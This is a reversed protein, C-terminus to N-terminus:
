NQLNRITKEFSRIAVKVKNFMSQEDQPKDNESAQDDDFTDEHKKILKQFKKNDTVGGFGASQDKDDYNNEQNDEKDQRNKDQKNQISSKNSEIWRKAEDIERQAEEDTFAWKTHEPQPADYEHAKQAALRLGAQAIKLLTKAADSLDTRKEFTLQSPLQFQLEYVHPREKQLKQLYAQVSEQVNEIESETLELKLTEWVKKVMANVSPYLPLGQDDKPVHNRELIVQQMLFFYAREAARTFQTQFQRQLGDQSEQQPYYTAIEDRLSNVVNTYILPLQQEYKALWQANYPYRAAETIQEKFEQYESRPMRMIKHLNLRQRDYGNVKFSENLHKQAKYSKKESIEEVWEQEQEETMPRLAREPLESQDENKNASNSNTGTGTRLIPVWNSRMKKRIDVPKSQESNEDEDDGNKPACTRPARRQMHQVEFAAKNKLQPLQEGNQVQEKAQIAESSDSDMCIMPMTQPFVSEPRFGEACMQFPVQSFCLQNQQPIIVHQRIMGNDVPTATAATAAVLTTLTAAKFHM